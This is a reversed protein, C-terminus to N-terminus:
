TLIMAISTKVGQMIMMMLWTIFYTSHFPGKRGCPLVEVFQVMLSFIGSVYLSTFRSSNVSKFRDKSSGGWHPVWPSSPSLSSANYRCTLASSHQLICCYLYIDECSKLENHSALLTYKCWPVPDDNTWTIAQHRDPVLGNGLGIIIGQWNDIPGEPVFKISEDIWICVNETLFLLKFLNDAYWWGNQEPRLTNVGTLHPLLTLLIIKLSM